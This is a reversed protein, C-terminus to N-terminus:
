KEIIGFRTVIWNNDKKSFTVNYSDTNEIIEDLDPLYWIVDVIGYYSQENNTAELKLVIDKIEIDPGGKADYTCYLKGNSEIYNFESDESPGYIVQYSMYKKLYSIMEEYSHYKSSAYYYPLEDPEGLTDTTIYGGCYGNPNQTYYNYVFTAVKTLEEKTESDINVYNNVKNDLKENIQNDNIVENQKNDKNAFTVGIYWGCGIGVLLLIIFSLILMTNKSKGEM